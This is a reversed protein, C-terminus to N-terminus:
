TNFIWFEGKKFYYESNFLCIDERGILNNRLITLPDAHSVIIIIESDDIKLINELGNKMRTLVDVWREGGPHRSMYFKKELSASEYGSDRLEELKNKNNNVGLGVETFDECIKAKTYFKDAIISATEKARFVPSSYISLKNIKNKFLKFLTESTVNIQFVGNTTLGYKDTDTSMINFLNTEAEGHRVLIIKRSM